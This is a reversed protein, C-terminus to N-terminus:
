CQRFNRFAVTTSVHLRIKGDAPSVYVSGADGAPAVNGAAYNTGFHNFTRSVLDIAVANPTALVLSFMTSYVNDPNAVLNFPVYRDIRGDSDIDEGYIIQMSEVGPILPVGAGGDVSSRCFLTPQPNAPDTTADVAVYLTDEGPSPGDALSVATGGRRVPNGLCDQVAGDAATGAAVDEGFYRVRLVDSLNSITVSGGLLNSATPDIAVPDNMSVFQPGSVGVGSTCFEFARGGNAGAPYVEYTNRYGARRVARSLLEFAFRSSEQLHGIDSHTRQMTLGSLYASSVAILVVMGITMSVLLEVLSLGASLIDANRVRCGAANM